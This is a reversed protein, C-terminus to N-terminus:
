QGARALIADWAASAARDPPGVVLAGRGLLAFLPNVLRDWRDGLRERLTEAVIGPGVARLVVAEDPLLFADASPPPAPALSADTRIRDPPSGAPVLAPDSKTVREFFQGASRPAAQDFAVGARCAADPAAASSWAIRGSVACPAGAAENKLELLVRTGPPLPLPTRLQCGGPGIDTTAVAFFGGAPVAVRADCRVQARPARRPNEIFASM